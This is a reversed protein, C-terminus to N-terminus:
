ARSAGTSVVPASLELRNGYRRALAHSPAEVLKYLVRTSAFLFIFFALQSGITAFGVFQVWAATLPIHVAYLTYSMEGLGVWLRHPRFSRESVAILVMGMWAALLASKGYHAGRFQVLNALVVYLGFGAAVWALRVQGPRNYLFEVSILGIVWYLYFAYWTQAAWTADAGALVAVIAALHIVVAAAVLRLAGYRRYIFLTLPYTAYLWMEVIVTQLIPNGPVYASPVFPTMLMARLTDVFESDRYTVTLGGLLCGLLFVPGIRAIRRKAYTRWFDTARSLASNRAAPLHICFGSLVIFVIVGAHTGANARITYSLAVIGAQLIAAVWGDPLAVHSMVVSLAAFGRIVDLQQLRASREVPVQTESSTLRQDKQLTTAKRSM